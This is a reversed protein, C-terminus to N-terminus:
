FFDCQYYIRQEYSSGVQELTAKGTLEIDGMAMSFYELPINLYSALKQRISQISTSGLAEITFAKNGAEINLGVRLYLYKSVNATM